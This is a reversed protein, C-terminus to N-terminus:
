VRTEGPINSDTGIVKHHAWEGSAARVSLPAGALGAVVALMM